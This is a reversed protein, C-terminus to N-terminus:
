QIHKFQLYDRLLYVHYYQKSGAFSYFEILSFRNLALFSLVKKHPIMSIKGQRTAATNFSHYRTFWV